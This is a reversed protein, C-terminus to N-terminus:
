QAMNYQRLAEMQEKGIEGSPIEKAGYSLLLEVVEQHGKARAAQLATGYIGPPHNVEASHELLLRVIAESRAAIEVKRPRVRAKVFVGDYRPGVGMALRGEIMNYGFVACQLATGLSAPKANVNAGKDLLLRVIEVSDRERSSCACQLADGRVKGEAHINAGEKLLLSVVEAYGQWCAIQVANDFRGPWELNAGWALLLTVIAVDGQRCAEGVATGLEPTLYNVDAGKELLYRAVDLYGPRAVARHLPPERVSKCPEMVDAGNNLLAEIVSFHGGSVAVELTTSFFTSDITAENFQALNNELLYRVTSTHGRASAAQLASRHAGVTPRLQAGLRFLSKTLSLLGLLSSYYWAPALGNLRGQFDIRDPNSTTLWNVCCTRRQHSQRAYDGEYAATLSFTLSIEASSVSRNETLIDSNITKQDQAFLRLVLDLEPTQADELVLAHDHWFRAAYQFFPFETGSPAPVNDFSILYTLSIKTAVRHAEIKDVSFDSSIRESVLYEQVSYHAFRLV